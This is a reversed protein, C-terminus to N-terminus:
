FFVLVYMNGSNIPHGNMSATHRLSPGVQLSESPGGLFGKFYRNDMKHWFAHITFFYKFFSIIKKLYLM